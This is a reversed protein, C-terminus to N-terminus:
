PSFTTLPHRVSSLQCTFIPSLELVKDYSFVAAAVAVLDWGRGGCMVQDLSHFAFISCLFFARIYLM